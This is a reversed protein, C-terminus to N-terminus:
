WRGRQWLATSRCASLAPRRVALAEVANRALSSAFQRYLADRVARPAALTFRYPALQALLARVANPRLRDPALLYGRARAREKLLGHALCQRPSAKAPLAADRATVQAKFPLGAAEALAQYYDDEALWGNAILVEHPHVGWQAALARACSFIARDVYRDLLFGYELEAPLQADAGHRPSPSLAARSEVVLSM